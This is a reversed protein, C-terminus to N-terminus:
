DEQRFSINGKASGKRIRHLEDSALQAAKVATRASGVGAKLEIGLEHKVDSFVGALEQTGVGNSAAMFNDGGTYFVLAGWKFLYNMLALHTKQILMHTDYIPDSDTFIVSHNVDMHTIQVWDEGRGESPKGVLVGKRSPSKSSGANQLALTALVQAEHPSQAAGVGMSVTVPFKGNVARLIKEHGELSVGNTIALFNDLRTSFVLAGSKGFQRELEALLEAQLIQLEAEPKPKPSVTWPGYNDIQVLTLQIKKM